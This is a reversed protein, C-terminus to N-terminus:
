SAQRGPKRIKGGADIILRRIVPASFGWAEALEIIGCGSKYDKLLTKGDKKSLEIRTTM